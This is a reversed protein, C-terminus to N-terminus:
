DSLKRGGGGLNAQKNGIAGKNCAATACSHERVIGDRGHTTDASEWEGHGAHGAKGHAKHDRHTLEPSSGLRLSNGGRSPFVEELSSKPRSGGLALPCWGGSGELLFPHAPTARGRLQWAQPRHPASPACGPYLSRMVPGPEPAM